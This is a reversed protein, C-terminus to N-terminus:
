RFHVRRRERTIATAKIPFLTALSTLTTATNPRQPSAEQRARTELSRNSQPRHALNPRSHRGERCSKGNRLSQPQTTESQITCPKIEQRIAALATHSIRLSVLTAITVHSELSQGLQEEKKGLRIGRQSRPSLRTFTSVAAKSEM